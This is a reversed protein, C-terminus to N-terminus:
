SGTRRLPSPPHRPPPPEEPPLPRVPILLAPITTRPPPRRLNVQEPTSILTEVPALEAPWDSLPTLTGKGIDLQSLSAREGNRGPPQALYFTRVLRADTATSRWEKARRLLDDREAVGSQFSASIRTVDHDVEEGVQRASAPMAGRLRQEEADSLAGLWRYQLTALVALTVVMTAVLVVLGITSRRM